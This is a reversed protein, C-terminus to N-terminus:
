GLGCCCERKQSHCIKEEKGRYNPNERLSQLTLGQANADVDEELFPLFSGVVFTVFSRDSGSPCAWTTTTVVHTTARDLRKTGLFGIIFFPQCEPTIQM